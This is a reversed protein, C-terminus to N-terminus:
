KLGIRSNTPYTIYLYVARNLKLLYIFLLPEEGRARYKICVAYLYEYTNRKTESSCRFHNNRRSLGPFQIM